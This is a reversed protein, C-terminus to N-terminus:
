VTIIPLTNLASIKKEDVLSAYIQTTKLNKHNLLKSITYIDVNKTLLLTAFTHRSVHFTLKKKLGANNAWKELNREVNSIDPLPFLLENQQIPELFVKMSDTIPIYQMSNTKKNRLVICNNETDINQSHLKKIDSIRLGCMCSFLFAKKVIDNPCPTKSLIRIENESLFQRQTEEGSIKKIKALDISPLLKKSQLFRIFHLFLTFYTKASNPSVTNLLYQSFHQITENTIEDVSPFLKSRVIHHELSSINSKSQDSSKTNKLEELYSSLTGTSLSPTFFLEGNQYLDVQCQSIKNQAFALVEKNHNREEKTRPNTFVYCNLFKYQHKKQVYIDLYLSKRNDKLEKFRLKISM